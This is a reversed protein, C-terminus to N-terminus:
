PKVFAEPDEGGNIVMEEVTSSLMKDGEFTIEFAFPLHLGDQERYDSYLQRIQGPAGTMGKGRYEMSLVRGTQPDIGLTMKEGDQEVYVLEVATGLVEAGGVVSAVLPNAAHQRLLLVLNRKFERKQDALRDAPMPVTGQPTVMFGTDRDIVQTMNGFTLADGNAIRYLNM